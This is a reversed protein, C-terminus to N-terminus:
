KFKKAKGKTVKKAQDPGGSEIVMKDIAEAVVANTEYLKVLERKYLATGEWLVGQTNGKKAGELLGFDLLFQVNEFGTSFGSRYFLPSSVEGFPLCIKSKRIAAKVWAGVRKGGDTDEMDTRSIKLRLWAYFEPASGHTVTDGAFMRPSETQHRSALIVIKSNNLYALLGRRYIEHLFKANAAAPTNDKVSKQDMSNGYCGAASLSDIICLTPEDNNYRALAIDELSQYLAELSFANLLQWDHGDQPLYGMVIQVWDESLGQENTNFFFVKGGLKQCERASRLMWATKGAAPRGYIDVPKGMPYGRRAQWNGLEMDLLLSGTSLYGAVSPPALAMPGLPKTLTSLLKEDEDAM